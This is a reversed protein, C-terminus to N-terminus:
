SNSRPCVGKHTRGNKPDVKESPRRPCDDVDAGAQAGRRHGYETGDPGRTVWMGCDPCRFRTM